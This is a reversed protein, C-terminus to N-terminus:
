HGSERSPMPRGAYRQNTCIVSITAPTKEGSIPETGDTAALTLNMAFNSVRWPGPSRSTILSNNNMDQRPGEQISLNPNSDKTINPSGLPRGGEWDLRKLTLGKYSLATSSSGCCAGGIAKSYSYSLNGSSDCNHIKKWANGWRTPSESFDSFIV